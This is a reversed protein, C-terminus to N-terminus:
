HRVLRRRVQRAVLRLSFPGHWTPHHGSGRAFGQHVTLAAVPADKVQSPHGSFEVVDVDFGGLRIEPFIRLSGGLHVAALGGQISFKRAPPVGFATLAIDLREELQGQLRAVGSQLLFQRGFELGEFFGDGLEADLQQEGALQIGVVRDEGDM